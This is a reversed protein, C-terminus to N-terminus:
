ENMALYGCHRLFHRADTPTIARIARGLSAYLGEVDRRAEQRLVMKMKSIANEIPNYDPSYPPLYLVRAGAAAILAAVRPSKHPALNDLVVVQGPRLVPTLFHEVFSVFTPTDTAGDFSMATVIGRVTLAAVTSLLKWHGHPVYGVVRQGQVGRARTRQM